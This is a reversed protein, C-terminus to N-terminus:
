YVLPVVDCQVSSLRIVNSLNLSEWTSTSIRVLIYTAYIVDDVTAYPGLVTYDYEILPAFVQPFEHM